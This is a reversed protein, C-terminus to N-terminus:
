KTFTLDPPLNNRIKTSKESYIFKLGSIYCHTQLCSENVKRRIKRRMLDTVKTRNSNDGVFFSKSYITLSM